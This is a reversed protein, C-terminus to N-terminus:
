NNMKPSYYVITTNKHKIRLSISMLYFQKNTNQNILKKSHMHNLHIHFLPYIEKYSGNENLVHKEKINSFFNIKGIKDQNTNYDLDFYKRFLHPINPPKENFDGKNVDYIGYNTKKLNNENKNKIKNDDNSKKKIINNNNNEIKNKNEYDDTNIINNENGNENIIKAENDIKWQNDIKYKYQYIGKPIHLTISFTGDNKKEMLFFNEWNCFSGTIYVINGGKNWKFEIPIKKEKEEEEEDNEDNKLENKYYETSDTNENLFAESFTKKFNLNEFAKENTKNNNETNNTNENNNNNENNTNKTENNNNNEKNNNKKEELSTQSGM